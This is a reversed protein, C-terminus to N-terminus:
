LFTGSSNCFGAELTAKTVSLLNDRLVNKMFKEATTLEKRETVTAVEELRAGSVILQRIMMLKNLQKRALLQNPVSKKAYVVHLNEWM